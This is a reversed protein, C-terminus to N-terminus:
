IKLIDLGGAGTYYGGISSKRAVTRIQFVCLKARRNRQTRNKATLFLLLCAFRSGLLEVLQTGKVHRTTNTHTSKQLRPLRSAVHDERRAKVEKHRWVYTCHPKNKDACMFFSLHLSVFIYAM